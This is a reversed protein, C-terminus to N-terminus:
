LGRFQACQKFVNLTPPVEKRRCWKSVLKLLEKIDRGSATNFQEALGAILSDSLGMQFQDSLVKWIREADVGQPTKYTITAICRSIIADDVDEERNTTMFLLGHFYELTRLFSAVVANHDIDDGRRRIYVDAEDLLMVAGWREARRLVGELRKQVEDSGVGLQGSHVKYLPREMVESYVEATLTKGLGPGGKCLVTTGGSKGAVIDDMLIDMDQTLIDILDRHDQPLVLKDKLTKDYVYPKTNAVHVWMNTHLDMNFFLIYPHVPIETFDVGMESWFPSEYSTSMKRRVLGEDQVCRVPVKLEISPTWSSSRVEKAMGTCWFQKNEQPLVEKFLALDRDYEARLEPTEKTYGASMLIEAIKRKGISEAGFTIGSSSLSQKDTGYGNYVLDVSVSAPSDREAENYEVGTVLYARPSDDGVKYLWGNIADKKVYEELVKALVKLNAVSATFPDKEANRLATIAGAMGREGMAKLEEYLFDKVDEGLQNYYLSAEAEDAWRYVRAGATKIASDQPFKELAKKLLSTPINISVGRYEKRAM